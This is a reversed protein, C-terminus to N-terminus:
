GSEQIEEGAVTYLSKLATGGINKSAVVQSGVQKFQKQEPYM